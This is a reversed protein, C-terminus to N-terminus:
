ARRETAAATATSQRCPTRTTPQTATASLSPRTSTRSSSSLRRRHMNSLRRTTVVASRPAATLRSHIRPQSYLLFPAGTAERTATNSRRSRHM